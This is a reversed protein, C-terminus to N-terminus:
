KQALKKNIHKEKKEFLNKLADEKEQIYVEIEHAGGIDVYDLELKKKMRQLIKKAQKQITKLDDQNIDKNSLFEQTYEIFEDVENLEDVFSEQVSNYSSLYYDARIKKLISKVIKEIRSDKSYDAPMLFDIREQKLLKKVRDLNCKDPNYVGISTGGGQKVIKMAPIDTESDGIYIFRQLPIRRERHPIYDNISDEDSLDLCDKSIRFLYQTKSTYNVVQCPWSPAGYQNYYFESAYVETFYKAISTGEIIEKLGASIIYHEINIQLDQAIANIREFWTDVGPFLEITKGLENFDERKISVKDGLGQAKDIILKMYALIKDMGNEKALGTSQKWFAGVKCKLKPILEFEQMDKPSLTKDFDYCIAVIPWNNQYVIEQKKNNM